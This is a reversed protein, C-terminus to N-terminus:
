ADGWREPEDVSVPRQWEGVLEIELELEVGFRRRVEARALKILAAVDASTANGGNMFFNGHIRAVYAGGIQCGRLGAQEILYGAHGGPPNKFTSGMTAGAPHRTRRWNLISEARAALLKPDDPGLRFTARTVLCSRDDLRKLRSTRYGFRFWDGEEERPSTAGDFVTASELVGAINGDFAGANGVVAGGVSGPLGVAWELGALGRAVSERAVVSLLAGAESTVSKDGFDVHSARNVIVVGRVGADSVLVNCGGGLIRRSVGSQQALIVASELEKLTNCVVLLDAPGGVRFATYPAVPEDSLGRDGLARALEELPTSV